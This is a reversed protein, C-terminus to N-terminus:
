SNENNTRTSNTLEAEEATKILWQGINKAVAPTILLSSQLERTFLGIQVQQSVPIGKENIELEHDKAINAKEAFLECQVLGSPSVGGIVGTIPAIAYNKSKTYEIKLKSM